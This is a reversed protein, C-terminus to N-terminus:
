SLLTLEDWYSVTNEIIDGLQSKKIDHVKGLFNPGPDNSMVQVLSQRISRRSVSPANSEGASAAKLGFIALKADAGIWLALLEIVPEDEPRLGSKFKELREIRASPKQKLRHKSAVKQPM